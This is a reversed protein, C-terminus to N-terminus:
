AIVGMSGGKVKVMGGIVVKPDESTCTIGVGRGGARM